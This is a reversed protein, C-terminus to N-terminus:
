GKRFIKIYFWTDQYEVNPLDIMSIAKDDIDINVLQVWYMDNPTPNSKCLLHDKRMLRTNLFHGKLEERKDILKM